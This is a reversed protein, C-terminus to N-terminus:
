RRLRRVVRELVVRPPETRLSRWVSSWLSRPETTPAPDATPGDPYPSLPVPGPAVPEDVALDTWHSRREKAATRVARLIEVYRAAQLHPSWELLASRRAATGIRRRLLEDDALRALAGPWEAHDQVLLGTVGHDIAETFPRTATAITPTEVLAAELWKIASKAQNFTGLDSLPALNVDVQRLLEPLEYWPRLPIRRVRSGLHDLEPVPPLLGGLWLEIDAREALLQALAPVVVALDADHTKTGSFYGVRLPGPERPRRLAADSLRGVDFGFANQKLHAPMGTIAGIHEVLPATSGIYADCHELTSRYRRVGQLWLALEDAPLNRLAPIDDTVDPDVILDDVDFAVPTGARRAEDVLALVRPTAPVRYVVVADARRVAAEVRPDSYHLVDTAIDRSALAEAPFQARYRLPAGDIGVVFAVHSPTWSENPAGRRDTTVDLLHRELDAVQEELTRVAVGTCGQRLRELLAPDEILTSLALALAEDDGTPVVMGNRGHEVVEEPGLSDSTIVPVGRLLAERTANSYTERALSPLVLVDTRSLVVDLEEPAYPPEMTVSGHDRLGAFPDDAGARGHIILEWSDSPPLRELARRLVNAGKLAEGGGTYRFRVRPSPSRDVTVPSSPMGNESVHVRHGDIGNARLVRATTASPVLIRDVAALHPALEAARRELHERGAQCGCVGARVVLSCPREDTDVLFQRACMWWYDHMTVVTRCGRERAVSVLSGGLTQLSHLNVVRPGFEDLWRGFAEAVGPNDYNHTDAWSTWPTTTIWTVPISEEDLETCVALPDSEADLRGAFVRVEHGRAALGRAMRQPVLTGGSVFNPPYHASVLAVRM